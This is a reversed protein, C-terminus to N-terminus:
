NKLINNIYLGIEYAMRCPISNGIQSIIEKKSGKIIFEEPFTQIKRLESIELRRIKKDDEYQILADYGDKYYRSTITYCPNLMDLIKPSYKKNVEVLSNVKSMASETLFSSEKVYKRSVLCTKLTLKKELDKTTPIPEELEGVNLNKLFCFIFTHYRYQPVSYDSANLTFTFCDYNKLELIILDKITVDKSSKINLINNPNEFIIVKPKFFEVFDLFYKFESNFFWEDVTKSDKKKCLPRFFILDVSNKNIEFLEMLEGPKVNRLFDNVGKGLNKRYNNIEVKRPDIGALINMGSNKLGQSFSGCGCYIDLVNLHDM